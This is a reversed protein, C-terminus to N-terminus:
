HIQVSTTAADNTDFTLVARADSSATITGGAGGVLTIQYTTSPMLGTVVHTCPCAQPISYSLVASNSVPTASTSAMVVWRRTGLDIEAGQERSDASIIYNSTAMAAQGSPTMQFLHLFTGTTQGVTTTQYNSVNGSVGSGDEYNISAFVPNPNAPMLARMFLKSGGRVASYVDGTHPVSSAYFNVNFIKKVAPNRVKMEDHVFVVNPRLYVFTRLASVVSNPKSNDNHDYAPAIDAEAYVFTGADEYRTIKADPGWYGQGPPYVISNGAGTDDFGLTNHSPLTNFLGYKGSDILLYDAGRQLTFHGQDLHQHDIEVPGAALSVWVASTSWDSRAYLPGTYQGLYSLPFAGAGAKYDTKTGTVPSGIDALLQRAYPAMPHNPLYQVFAAMTGQLPTAPLSNWDGGDYFTVRDPKTGHITAPVLNTTWVLQPALDEPAGDITSIRKWLDYIQLVDQDTGESYTGQPGYGGPLNTQMTNFTQMLLSHALAKLDGGPLARPNDTDTAYAIFMASTLYGEIFYNGIACLHDCLGPGEYGAATFWDLQANLVTYFEQRLAPTMLGSQRLTDYGYALGASMARMNYGPGDPKVSEVGGAFNSTQTYDTGIYQVFLTKGAAPATAFTLTTGSVTFGTKVETATASQNTAVYYKETDAPHKAGLWHLVDFKSDGNVFDRMSVHFDVEPTYELAANSTAGEMSNSIRLVPYLASSDYGATVQELPINSYTFQSVAWTNTFVQVKTGTLPTMPLTFTKTTGDAFALFQHNQNPIHNNEDSPIVPFTRSLTKMIAVAKTAYVPAKPDGRLGGAAACLGFDQASERWNFGAYIDNILQSLNSDCRAKLPTWVSNDTSASEVDAQSVKWSREFGDSFVHDAALSSISFACTLAFIGTRFRHHMCFELHFEPTDITAISHQV